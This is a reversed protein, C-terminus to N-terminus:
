PLFKKTMMCMHTINVDLMDASKKIDVNDFTGNTMLGANNILISVELDKM